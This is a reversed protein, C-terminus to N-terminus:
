LTDFKENISTVVDNLQSISTVYSPLGCGGLAKNADALVQGVTKGTAPGSTIVYNLLAGGSSLVQTNLTLALVQGAFVGAATGPPTTPDTASAILAGPTSKAPLFARIANASTFTLTKGGCANTIDGIKPTYGPHATFYANLVTGPNNGHPTVHWGGQTVTVLNPPQVTCTYDGTDQVSSPITSSSTATALNLLQQGTCSAAPAGGANTITVVVTQSAGAALTGFNCTLNQTGDISCDSPPGPTVSTVGWTLGGTTPLPDSLTVDTADFNGTNTVVITFSIADGVNFAANDPTKVIEIHTNCDSGSTFTVHEWQFITGDRNSTIPQIVFTTGSWGLASLGSTGPSTGFGFPLEQTVLVQGCFQDFDTSTLVHQESFAVGFFESDRRILDLDEPHFANDTHFNCHNPTAEGNVDLTCAPASAHGNSITFWSDTGNPDIAYIAGGDPNYDAASAPRAGLKYEEAGALIRGAAPGFVAPIDPVTVVGELHTGITAVQTCGASCDAASGSAVRWVNGVSDNAATGDQENGTVVILDGGAVCFRDQFLSGRVHALESPLKRWTYPAVPNFLTGTPGLRVIEGPNGNGTFVEGATFGGQCSSTRVTAIKLEDTLGSLTSFQTPSGTTSDVLDLNHPTGSFYNVSMILQGSTDQFDIGVPHNFTFSFPTLTIPAAVATGASVWLMALTVVVRLIAQRM